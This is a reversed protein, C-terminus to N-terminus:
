QPTFGYYASLDPIIEATEYINGKEDQTEYKVPVGHCYYTKLIQIPVLKGEELEIYGDIDKM